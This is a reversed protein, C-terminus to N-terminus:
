GQGTAYVQGLRVAAFDMVAYDVVGHGRAARQYMSPSDSSLEAPFSASTAKSCHMRYGPRGVTRLGGRGRLRGGSAPALGGRRTADRPGAPKWRVFLSRGPCRPRRPAQFRDRQEDNVVEFVESGAGVTAIGVGTIAPLDSRAQKVLSSLRVGLDTVEADLDRWRSALRRLAYRTGLDPDTLDRHSASGLM